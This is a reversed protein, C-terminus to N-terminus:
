NTQENNDNNRKEKIFAKITVADTLRVYFNNGKKDVIWVFGGSETAKAILENLAKEVNATEM